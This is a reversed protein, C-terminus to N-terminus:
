GPRVRGHVREVPVKAADPRRSWSWRADNDEQVGSPWVPATPYRFLNPLISPGDRFVRLAVALTALVLAVSIAAVPDM